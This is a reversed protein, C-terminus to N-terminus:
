EPQNIETGKETDNSLISILELRFEPITGRLIMSRVMNVISLIRKQNGTETTCVFYIHSIGWNEETREEKTKLLCVTM